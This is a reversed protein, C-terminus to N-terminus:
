EPCWPHYLQSLQSNVCKSILWWMPKWVFLVLSRSVLLCTRLSSWGSWPTAYPSVSKQQAPTWMGTCTVSSLCFFPCSFLLFILCLETSPHSQHPQLSLLAKGPSVWCLGSYFWYVRGVLRLDSSLARSAASLSTPFGLLSDPRVPAEATCATKKWAAPDRPPNLVLEPSWPKLWWLRPHTEALPSCSGTKKFM